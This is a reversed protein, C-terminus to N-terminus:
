TMGFEKYQTDGHLRMPWKVGYPQKGKEYLPLLWVDLGKTLKKGKIRPKVAYERGSIQIKTPLSSM